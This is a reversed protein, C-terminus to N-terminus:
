SPLIREKWACIHERQAVQCQKKGADGRNVPERSARGRVGLVLSGVLFLIRDVLVASRQARDIYLNM